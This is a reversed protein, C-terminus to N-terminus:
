YLFRIRCPYTSEKSGSDGLCGTSETLDICIVFCCLLHPIYRLSDCFKPRYASTHYNTFCHMVHIGRSNNCSTLRLPKSFVQHGKRHLTKVPEWRERQRRHDSASKSETLTLPSSSANRNRQMSQFFGRLKLATTALTTPSIAPEGGPTESTVQYEEGDIEILRGEVPTPSQTRSVIHVTQM